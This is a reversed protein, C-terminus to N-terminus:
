AQLHASLYEKLSDTNWSDIALSDKVEGGADQMHLVPNAGRKNRIELNAFEHRMDGKVFAQIQPFRGLKWNCVELVAKAFKSSETASEKEEQCCRRCDDELFKMSLGALEDCSSCLLNSSFGLDRCSGDQSVAPCFLIALCGLLLYGGSSAAAMVAVQLRPRTLGISSCSLCSLIIKEVVVLFFFFNRAEHSLQIHTYDQFLM